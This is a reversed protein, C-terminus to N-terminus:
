CGLDQPRRLDLAIMLVAGEDSARVVQIDGNEDSGHEYRFLDLPGLVAEADATYVEISGALGLVLVTAAQPEWGCMSTATGFPFTEPEFTVHVLEADAILNIDRISGGVLEGHTERAGDFEAIAYPERLQQPGGEDFTLDIGDGEFLMLSRRHGPFRSFPGSVAVTAASLRWLFPESARAGPPDSAIELTTGGGNKWPAELHEVAPITLSTSM